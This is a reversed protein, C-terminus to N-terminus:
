NIFFSFRSIRIGGAGRVYHKILREAVKGAAEDSSSCEDSVVFGEDGSCVGEEDDDKYVRTKHVRSRVDSRKTPTTEQGTNERILRLDDKRIRRERKSIKITRVAKEEIEAAENTDDIFLRDEETELEGDELEDGSDSGSVAADTEVFRCAKRARKPM